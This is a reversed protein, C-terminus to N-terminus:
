IKVTRNATCTGHSRSDDSLSDRVIIYFQMPLNIYLHGNDDLSIQSYADSIMTTLVTM